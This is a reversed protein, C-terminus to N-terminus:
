SDKEARVSRGKWTVKTGTVRDFVVQLALLQFWIVALAHTLSFMVKWKFRYSLYIRQLIPILIITLSLPQLYNFDDTTLAILLYFPLLYVLIHVVWMLLFLVPHGFGPLFNKRFGNWLEKHSNYMRCYVQGVGHTMRIRHGAIKVQKAMEIDEVVKDKVAEHGGIADYTTRKFALYQGNAAAFLPDTLRRLFIPIWRPSREVYVAPLLTFLAHYIMPIIFQEWM